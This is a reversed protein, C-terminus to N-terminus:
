ANTADTDASRSWSPNPVDLMRTLESISTEYNARETEFSKWATDRDAVIPIGLQQLRQATEEFMDRTITRQTPASEVAFVKQRFHQVIHAIASPGRELCRRAQPDPPLDVLNNRLNAGDLIIPTDVSWHHEMFPAFVTLYGEVTRYTQEINIFDAAWQGWIPTLTELGHTKAANELFQPGTKARDIRQDMERVKQRQSTFSDYMNNIYVILIGIFFTTTLGELAFILATPLVKPQSAFGLTSMSSVSGFISARLSLSSVGYIILVYGFTAIGMSVALISTLSFPLYLSQLEKRKKPDRFLSSVFHLVNRCGRFVLRAMAPPESGQIMMVRTAWVFALTVIAIGGFLCLYRVFADLPDKDLHLVLHHLTM